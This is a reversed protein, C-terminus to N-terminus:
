TTRAETTITPAPILPREAAQSNDPAIAPGFSFVGRISTM